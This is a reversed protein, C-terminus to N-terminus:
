ISRISCRYGPGPSVSPDIVQSEGTDLARLHAEQGRALDVREGVRDINAEPGGDDGGGLGPESGALQEPQPGIADVTALPSQVDDLDGLVDATVEHGTRRLGPGTTARNRDGAGDYVGDVVMEIRDLRPRVGDDEGCRLAAVDTELEPAAVDPVRGDFGGAESRQSRM